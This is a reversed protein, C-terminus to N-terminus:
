PVELCVVYTTIHAIKMLVSIFRQAMVIMNIGRWIETLRLSHAACPLALFLGLVALRRGQMGKLLWGALILKTTFRSPVILSTFCGLEGDVFRPMDGGKGITLLRERSTTESPLGARRPGGLHAV